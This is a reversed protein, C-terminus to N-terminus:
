SAFWESSDRVDRELAKAWDEILEEDIASTHGFDGSKSSAAAKAANKVAIKLMKEHIATTLGDKRKRKLAPTATKAVSRRFGRPVLNHVVMGKLLNRLAKEQHAWKAKNYIKQLKRSLAPIVKTRCVKLCSRKGQPGCRGGCWHGVKESSLNGHTWSEVAVRDAAERNDGSLGVARGARTSSNRHSGISVGISGERQRDEM